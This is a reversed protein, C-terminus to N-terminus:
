TGRRHKEIVDARNALREAEVPKQRRAYFTSMLRLVRILEVQDIVQQSELARLVDIFAVEAEEYSGLLEQVIALEVLSKAVRSSDYGSAQAAKVAAGLLKASKTGRGEEKARMGETHLQEWSWDTPPQYGGFLRKWLDM